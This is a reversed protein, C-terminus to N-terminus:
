RVLGQSISFGDSGLQINLKLLVLIILVIVAGVIWWVFKPLNPLVM